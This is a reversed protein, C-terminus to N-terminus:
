FRSPLDLNKEGELQESTTLTTLLKPNADDEPNDKKETRIKELKTIEGQTAIQQSSDNDTDNLQKSISDCPAFISQELFSNVEKVAELRRTPRFNENEKFTVKGFSPTEILSSKPDMRTGTNNQAQSGL